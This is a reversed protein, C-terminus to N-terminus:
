TWVSDQIVPGLVQDVGLFSSLSPVPSTGVDVSLVLAPIRTM